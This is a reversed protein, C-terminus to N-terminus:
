SSGQPEHLKSFKLFMVRAWVDRFASANMDNEKSITVCIVFIQMQIQFLSKPLTSKIEEIIFFKEM